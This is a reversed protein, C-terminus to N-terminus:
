DLERLATFQKMLVGAITRIRLGKRAKEVATPITDTVVVETIPADLMLGVANGVLLGHTAYVYVERAGAQKVAKAAVAMTSGSNIVDDTIIVDKGFLKPHDEIRAEVTEVLGNGGRRKQLCVFPKQILQAFAHGREESGADPSVVVADKLRGREELDDAFEQWVSLGKWPKKLSTLSHPDIVWGDSWPVAGLMRQAVAFADSEGDTFRRNQLSYGMWPITVTVRKAGAGWLADVLNGFLIMNADVPDHTSHVVFIEPSQLPETLRVRQEGSAFRSHAVSLTPWNLERSVASILDPHTLSLLQPM